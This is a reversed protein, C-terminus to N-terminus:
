DASDNKLRRRRPPVYDAGYREELIAESLSFGPIRMPKIHSIDGHGPTVDLGAARLLEVQELIEKPIPKPPTRLATAFVDYFLERIDPELNFEDLRQGMKQRVAEQVQERFEPTDTEWTSVLHMEGDEGRRWKGKGTAEGNGNRKM